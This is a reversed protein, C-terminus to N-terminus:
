NSTIHVKCANRILTTHLPPSEQQERQEEEEEEGEHDHNIGVVGVFYQL